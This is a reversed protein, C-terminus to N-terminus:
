DTAARVRASFRASEIVELPNWLERPPESVGRAAAGVTEVNIRAGHHERLYTKFDSNTRAARRADLWESQYDSWEGDLGFCTPGFALIVDHIELGVLTIRDLVRRQCAHEILDALVMEEGSADSRRLPATVEELRRPTMRSMGLSRANSLSEEIREQRAGDVVVVMAADTYDLLLRADVNTLQRVGRFPVVRTDLDSGRRRALLAEFVARDHEGEVLVVAELFTLMEALSVGLQRAVERPGGDGVPDSLRIRGSSDRQVHSLAGVGSRLAAPSHTALLSVPYLSELLMLLPAVAREAVGRDVEDALLVTRDDETFGGLPLLFGIWSRQASSLQNMRLWRGTTSDQAELVLMGGVLAARVGGRLALRLGSIGLGLGHVRTVLAQLHANEHELDPLDAEVSHTDHDFEVLLTGREYPWGLSDLYREVQRDIDDSPEITKVLVPLGSVDVGAWPGGVPAYPSPTGPRLSGIERQARDALMSSGVVVATVVESSDGVGSHRVARDVFGNTEPDLRGAAFDKLAVVSRELLDSGATDGVVQAALKVQWQPARWGTVEFCLLRSNEVEWCFRGVEACMVEPADSYGPVSRHADDYAAQGFLLLRVIHVWSPYQFEAWEEAEIQNVTLEPAPHPWGLPVQDFRSGIERDFRLFECGKPISAILKHFYWGGPPRKGAPMPPPGPLVVRDKGDITASTARDQKGHNVWWNALGEQFSQSRHEANAAAEADTVLLRLYLRTTVGHTKFGSLASRVVDLVTTKGAGNRGYLVSMGSSFPVWISGRPDDDATFLAEVGLLEVDHVHAGFLPEAAEFDSTM